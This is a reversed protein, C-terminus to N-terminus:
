HNHLPLLMARNSQPSIWCHLFSLLARYFTTFGQTQMSASGIIRKVFPVLMFPGLLYSYSDLGSTYVCPKLGYLAELALM